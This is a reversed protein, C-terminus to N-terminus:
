PAVTVSGWMQFHIACFFNYANARQFQHEYTEGPKLTKYVLLERTSANPDQTVVLHTEADHNIWKVVDGPHIALIQPSFAFTGKEVTVEHTKGVPAAPPKQVTEELAGAPLPSLLLGWLLIARLSRVIM